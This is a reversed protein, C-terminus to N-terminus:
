RERCVQSRRGVQMRRHSCNQEPKQCRLMPAQSADCSQFRLPLTVLMTNRRACCGGCTMMQVMGFSQFLRRTSPGDHMNGSSLLEAQRQLSGSMKSGAVHQGHLTLALTRYVGAAHQENTPRREEGIPTIPGRALTEALYTPNIALEWPDNLTDSRGIWLSRRQLLWMFRSFSMYRWLKQDPPYDAM